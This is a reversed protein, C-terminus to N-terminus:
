LAPRKEDDKISYNGIGIPNKTLRILCFRDKDFVPNFAPNCAPLRATLPGQLFHVPMAFLVTIFWYLLLAISYCLLL